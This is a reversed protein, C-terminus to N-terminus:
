QKWAKEKKTLQSKQNGNEKKLQSNEIALEENRKKLYDIDAQMDLYSKAMNESADAIRILASLKIQESSFGKGEPTEITFNTRSINRLNIKKSM